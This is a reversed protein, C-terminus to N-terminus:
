RCFQGPRAKTMIAARLKISSRSILRRKPAIVASLSTENVMAGPLKVASSPGLGPATFRGQESEDGTQVPRVRALYQDGAPRDGFQRRRCRLM